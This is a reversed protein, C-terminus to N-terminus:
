AMWGCSRTRMKFCPCAESLAKSNALFCVQAKQRDCTRGCTGKGDLDEWTVSNLSTTPISTFFKCPQGIFWFTIYPRSRLTGHFCSDASAAMEDFRSVRIGAYNTRVSSPECRQDVSLIPSPDLGSWDPHAIEVIDQSQLSRLWVWLQLLVVWNPWVSRWPPQNARTNDRVMASNEGDVLSSHSSHINCSWTFFWITWDYPHVAWWCTNPLFGLTGAFRRSSGGAHLELWQLGTQSQGREIEPRGFPLVALLTLSAPRGTVACPAPLKVWPWEWTHTLPNLLRNSLVSLEVLALETRPLHYTSGHDNPWNSFVIQYSMTSLDELYRWFLESSGSFFFLNM